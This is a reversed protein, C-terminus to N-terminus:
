KPEPKKNEGGVYIAVLKGTSDGVAGGAVTPVVSQLRYLDDLVYNAHNIVKKLQDRDLADTTGKLMKRAEERELRAAGYLEKRKTLDYLLGQTGTSVLETGIELTAKRVMAARAEPSLMSDWAIRTSSSGLKPDIIARAAKVMDADTSAPIPRKEKLAQVLRAFQRSRAPDKLYRLADEYVQEQKVLHVYAGDEGAIFTKGAILIVKCHFSAAEGLTGTLEWFDLVHDMTNLMSENGLYLRKWSLSAEKRPIPPPVLIHDLGKALKAIRPNTIQADWAPPAPKGIDKLGLGGSTDGLDKLRLDGVGAGKLGLEGEAIGKMSSLAEQKKRDFELQRQRAAEEDRKRQEEIEQQRRREVELQRQREAEQRQREAEAAAIAASNDYYPQSGNGSGRCGWNSGPNCRPNGSSMSFSGCCGECWRKYNAVGAGGWSNPPSSCNQALAAPLSLVAVFGLVVGLLMLRKM